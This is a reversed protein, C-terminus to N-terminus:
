IKTLLYLLVSSIIGATGGIAAVQVKIATIRSNLKDQAAALRVNLEEMKSNSLKLEEKIEALEKNIDELARLTYGRWETTKDKFQGDEDM